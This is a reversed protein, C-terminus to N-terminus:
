ISIIKKLTEEISENTQHYTLTWGYKKTLYKLEERNKNFKKQYEEKINKTNEIIIEEKTELDTFNIRGLYPFLIEANDLVQLLHGTAKKQAYSLMIEEIKKKSFLFDSILLVSSNEPLQSNLAPESEKNNNSLMKSLLSSLYNMNYKEIIQGSTEGILYIQEGNRVSMIIIALLIIISHELKTQYKISSSFLMSPSNDFWLAITQNSNWEKERVLAKGLKASQRWDIISSSDGQAYNRFQWFDGGEGTKRKLHSGILTKGSVQKQPMKLLPFKRTIATAQKHLEEINTNM